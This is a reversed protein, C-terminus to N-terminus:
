FTLKMKETKLTDEVLSPSIDDIKRVRIYYFRDDNKNSLKKEQSKGIEIPM